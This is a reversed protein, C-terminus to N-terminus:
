TTRSIADEVLSTTYAYGAIDVLNDRSPANCHRSVKTLIMLQGIDEPRIPANLRDGFYANWLSAIQGFNDLPRGYLLRRPGLVVRKAEMPIPLEVEVLTFSGQEDTRLEKIPIGCISAIYAEDTAGRSNTWDDFLIVEDSSMVAKLDRKAIEGGWEGHETGSQEDLTVPNIVTRDYFESKIIREVEAFREKNWDPYGSMPGSIYSIPMFVESPKTVPLLIAWDSWIPLHLGQSYVM